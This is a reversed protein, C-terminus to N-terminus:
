QAYNNIDSPTGSTFDNPDYDENDNNPTNVVIINKNTTNSNPYTVDYNLGNNHPNVGFVFMLVATIYTMLIFPIFVIMWSVM